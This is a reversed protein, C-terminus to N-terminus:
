EEELIQQAKQFASRNVEPYELKFRAMSIHAEAAKALVLNRQAHSVQTNVKEPDGLHDLMNQAVLLHDSARMERM